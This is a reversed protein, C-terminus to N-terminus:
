ESNSYSFHRGKWSIDVTELAAVERSACIRPVRRSAIMKELVEEVQLSPSPMRILRGSLESLEPLLPSEDETCTLRAFIQEYELGVFGAGIIYIDTLTDMQQLCRLFTATQSVSVSTTFVSIEQPASPRSLFASLTPFHDGHVAPLMNRLDIDELAPVVLNDLLEFAAADLTLKLLSKMWLPTVPDPSDDTHVITIRLELVVLTEACANLARLLTTQSFAARYIFTLHTLGPLSPMHPLQDLPYRDHLNRYCVELSRLASFRVLFDMPRDTLEGNMRMVVNSLAPLEYEPFEEFFAFSGHIDISEIRALYPHLAQMVDRFPRDGASDRHHVELPLGGALVATEAAYQAYDMWKPKLTDSHLQTPIQRWLAPTGRAVARWTSCVCSLIHRVIFVSDSVWPEGYGDDQAEFFVISLLEPPLRRVPSVISKQVDCQRLVRARLETLRSIEADIAPIEHELESTVEKIARAEVASPVFGSRQMDLTTMRTARELLTDALM